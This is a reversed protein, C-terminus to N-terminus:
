FHTNLCKTKNLTANFIPVVKPLLSQVSHVINHSTVLASVGPYRKFLGKRLNKELLRAPGKTAISGQTVLMLNSSFGM